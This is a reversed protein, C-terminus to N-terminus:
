PQSRSKGGRRLLAFMRGDIALLGAGILAMGAFHKADLREGLVLSGLLIASVPILFTVLLLNTAGASALIRFYIVYGLATSLLAIGAIAGWAPLSPIALLWPRDVMLAVPLLIVTSAIVQGTATIMPAVGLRKFRRGFVGAFAYSLAAALCALQAAVNVGFGQLVEPGIMVVVGLLGVIVGALRNGTMKEDATLFHAVLVTALPTTANLISALGSAIHTQGWVILGFPLANNLLGMSFFAAWIRRHAPMKIGIARLAVLLIVAAFAVRLLAVTLPPIEKLAVANFFFSCAWLVSLGLLLAWELATMSRHISVAESM